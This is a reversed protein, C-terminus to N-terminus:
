NWCAVQVAMAAGLAGIEEPALRGARDSLSAPTEGMARLAALLVPSPVVFQVEPPFQRVPDELRPLLVGIVAGSNDLVAGGADGELAPLSIRARAAAGDLGQGAEFRGFTVTPLALQDGFPFGAAAVETGPDPLTEALRGVGQPALAVQPRLLAFTGEADRLAVTADQNGDLTIRSCGEVAAAATLVAGEPSVFFGSVTRLPRRPQLGAMLSARMEDDLPVLGPDLVRNGSARFSAKMSQLVRVMRDSSATGWVVLFGRIQGNAQQAQAYAEAAPSRGSIEFGRGRLARPGDPPVVALSQVLEFLGELAAQDGPQSILWVQVGSGDKEAYHAFPPAYREFTVLGLPLEIEIGAEEDRIRELGIAALQERWDALLAAQQVTSLVGTPEALSAGQWASIAGRTGPGFAGDVAASYFGFWQLASQIDMREARSLAAEARRSEALTEVPAVAAAPPAAEAEPAPETAPEEPPVLVPLAAQGAPPWVKGRYVRGDAVFSDAPISGRLDSLRGAAETAPFPGLAIAHWGSALAHVSVEPFQEAWSQAREIAAAESNRAEIQLWVRSEQTQAAGSWVVLGLVAVIVRVLGQLM